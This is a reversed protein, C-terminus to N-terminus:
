SCDRGCLANQVSQCTCRTCEVPLCQIILAFLMSVCPNNLLARSIFNNFLTKRLVAWAGKQEELNRTTCMIQVEKRNMFIWSLLCVVWGSYGQKYLGRSFDHRRKWFGYAASSMYPALKMDLLEQFSPHRGEGFLLWFDEYKLAKIAATKLEMLHGQCPNMDICHIKAPHRAAAYHLANDGASTIVFINDQPTIDMWDVDVAPDEWVFSYIFDTLQDPLEIYPLRDSGWASDVGGFVNLKLKAEPLSLDPIVERPPNAKMAPTTKTSWYGEDMSGLSESPSWNANPVDKEGIFVYYPIRIAPLFRNRGSFSKVTDFKHEVYLRKLPDLDVHDWSFWWKWFTRTFWSCRRSKRTESAPSTTFDAIGFLGGPLLDAQLRDILPYLVPIMSLSYSMTILNPRQGKPLALVTADQQLVVVNPFRELRKKAVELLPTTLDVLYIAKFNSLPFFTDM